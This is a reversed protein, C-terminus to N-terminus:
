ESCRSRQKKPALTFPNLHVYHTPLTLIKLMQIKQTNTNNLSVQDGSHSKTDHMVVSKNMAQSDGSCVDPWLYFPSDVQNYYIAM